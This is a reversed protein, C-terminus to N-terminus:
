RGTSRPSTFPSARPGGRASEVMMGFEAFAYSLTNTLRRPNAGRRYSGTGLGAGSARPPVGLARRRRTRLRRDGVMRPGAVVRPRLPRGVLAPPRRPGPRVGPDDGHPGGTRPRRRRGPPAPIALAAGVLLLVAFGLALRSVQAANDSRVLSALGQVERAREAAVLGMAGAAIAPLLRAPDAWRRRRAISWAVLRGDGGGAPVTVSVTGTATDRRLTTVAGAIALFTGPPPRWERTEGAAIILDRSILTLGDHRRVLHEAGGDIPVTPPQTAIASPVSVARGRGRGVILQEDPDPAADPSPATAVHRGSAPLLDIVLWGALLVVAGAVGWFLLPPMELGAPHPLRDGVHLVPLVIM